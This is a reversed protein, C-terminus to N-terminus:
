VIKASMLWSIGLICVLQVCLLAHLTRQGRLWAKKALVATAEHLMFGALGLYPFLFIRWPGVLTLWLGTVGALGITARNIVYIVRLRTPMKGTDAGTSRWALAIWILTALLALISLGIHSHRIALYPM